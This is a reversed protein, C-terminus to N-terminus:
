GAQSSHLQGRRTRWDNSKLLDPGLDILRPLLNFVAPSTWPTGERTKFGRVNLEEAIYSVGKEVVILELITMLVGIEHPNQRLRQADPAIELGYPATQEPPATTETPVEVEREWEVAKLKWGASLREQFYDLSVPHQVTDRLHRLM